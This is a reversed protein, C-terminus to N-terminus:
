IEHVGIEINVPKLTLTPSSTARGLTVNMLYFMEDIQVLQYLQGGESMWYRGLGERAQIIDVALQRKNYVRTVSALDHSM